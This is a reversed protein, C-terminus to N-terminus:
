SRRSFFLMTIDDALEGNQFAFLEEKIRNQVNEISDELSGQLIDGLRQTGFFNGSADQAETVGDTFFILRDGIKLEHSAERYTYNEVIGLAPDGLSPLSM